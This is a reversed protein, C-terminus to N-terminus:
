PLYFVQKLPFTKPSYDANTEMLDKMYAWWEKMIPDAKLKQEVFGEALTQVAFLDL